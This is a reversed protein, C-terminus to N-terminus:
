GRRPQRVRRLQGRRIRLYLTLVHLVNLVQRKYEHIRKVQVDFLSHPDLPSGLLHAAHESLRQKNHQKIAQFEAAFAADAALPELERLRELDTLWGEGIASTILSTLEPNALAIFRRPTVGNTVNLFKGPAVRHFDRLVMQKLLQTHLAAVGNIAHSGVCALHAMRVSKEGDEDILSLRRVLHDDGPHKERVDDLFRRNIEYIIEM